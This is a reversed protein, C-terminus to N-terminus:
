RVGNIFGIILIILVNLFLDMTDSLSFYPKICKGFIWGLGFLIIFALISFAVTSSITAFIIEKWNM